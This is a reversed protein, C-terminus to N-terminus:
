LGEDFAVDVAYHMRDRLAALEDVPPPPPDTDGPWTHATITRLRDIQSARWWEWWLNAPLGFDLVAQHFEDMEAVTPPAFGGESYALGAPVVPLDKIATLEKISQELQERPNHSGLWYVQPSHYDCVDLFQWFPFERHYSPYRYSSLGIPMDPLGARLHTAYAFAEEPQDKYEHEANIMFGDLNLQIARDIAQQAYRKAFGPWGYIYQWGHVKIGADQFAKILPPLIDDVYKLGTWRRNYKFIGNSVKPAVWDLRMALAAQVIPDIVQSQPLLKSGSVKGTKAALAQEEDDPYLGQVMRVQWLFLGKGKPIDARSM